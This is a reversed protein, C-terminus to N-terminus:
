TGPENPRLYSTFNDTNCYGAGNCLSCTKYGKRITTGCSCPQIMGRKELGVFSEGMATYFEDMVVKKFVRYQASDRTGFKMEGLNLIEKMASMQRLYICKALQGDEFIKNM